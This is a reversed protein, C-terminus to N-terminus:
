QQTKIPTDRWILQDGERQIHVFSRHRTNFVDVQQRVYRGSASFYLAQHLQRVRQDWLHNLGNSAPSVVPVLLDPHDRAYLQRLPLDAPAVGIRGDAGLWLLGAALAQEFIEADERRPAQSPTHSISPTPIATPREYIATLQGHLLGTSLIIGLAFLIPNFGWRRAVDNLKSLPKM